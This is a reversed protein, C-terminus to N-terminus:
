QELEDLEGQLQQMQAELRARRADLTSQRHQKYETRKNVMDQSNHCTKGVGVDFIKEYGKPGQRIGGVYKGCPLQQPKEELGAQLYREVRSENLLGIVITECYRPDTALLNPDIDALVERFQGKRVSDSFENGIIEVDGQRYWSVLCKYLQKNNITEPIRDVIVRTTDYFQGVKPRAECVDTLLYRGQNIYSQKINYPSKNQPQSQPITKEKKKFIDLLGM